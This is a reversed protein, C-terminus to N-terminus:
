PVSEDRHRMEEEIPRRDDLKVNLLSEAKDLEKLTDKLSKGDEIFIKRGRITRWVGKKGKYEDM